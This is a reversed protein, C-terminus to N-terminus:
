WYQTSKIILCFSVRIHVGLTTRLDPGEQWYDIQGHIKRFKAGLINLKSKKRLLKIQINVATQYPNIFFCSTPVSSMTYLMLVVLGEQYVLTDIIEQWFDRKDKDMYNPKSQFLKEIIATINM